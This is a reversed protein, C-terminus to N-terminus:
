DLRVQVDEGTVAQLVRWCAAASASDSLHAVDQQTLPGVLKGKPSALFQGNLDEGLKSADLYRKAGVAIPAAVGLMPGVLSAFRLMLRFLWPQHRAANTAPANGPSVANATMGQPLRLALAKAWLAVMVKATCYTTSWHHRAPPTMMILTRIAEDLDGGFHQEAFAVPLVPKMGPADGRAGESGAILIRAKASLLQQRLMRLTLAHHGVLSAAATLEIGDVTRILQSGPLVGANLILVDFAGSRTPLVESATAVSALSALDLELPEFVNLCTRQKLAQQASEAKERTRCAVVVRTFGAGAMQAAAEFGLGSNAGTVLAARPPQPTTLPAGM